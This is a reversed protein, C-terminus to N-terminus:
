ALKWLNQGEDSGIMKWRIAEACQKHIPLETKIHEAISEVYYMNNNVYYM